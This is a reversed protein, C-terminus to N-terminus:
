RSRGSFVQRVSMAGRRVGTDRGAFDLCAQFAGSRLRFGKSKLVLHPVLLGPQRLARNPKRRGLGPIEGEM